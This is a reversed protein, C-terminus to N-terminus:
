LRQYADIESPHAAAGGSTALLVGGVIVAVLLLAVLVILFIVVGPIWGPFSANNNNGSPDTPSIIFSPPLASPVEATPPPRTPSNTKPLTPAPTPRSTNLAPPFYYFTAGCSREPYGACRFTKPCTSEVNTCDLVTPQTELGASDCPNFM